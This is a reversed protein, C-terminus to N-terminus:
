KRIEDAPLIRKYLITAWRDDVPDVSQIESLEVVLGCASCKLCVSLRRMAKGCQSCEILYGAPFKM